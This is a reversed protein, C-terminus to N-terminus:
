LRKVSAEGKVIESNFFLNLVKENLSRTYLSKLLNIKRIKVCRETLYNNAVSMGLAHM